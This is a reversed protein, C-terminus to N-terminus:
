LAHVSLTCVLGNTNPLVPAPRACARCAGRPVRNGLKFAVPLRTNVHVERQPLRALPRIAKAGLGAPTRGPERTVAKVLRICDCLAHPKRQVALPAVVVVKGSALVLIGAANTSNAGTCSVALSQRIEIGESDGLHREVYLRLPPKVARTTAEINIKM